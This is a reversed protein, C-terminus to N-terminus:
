AMPYLYLPLDGSVRGGSNRGACPDLKGDGLGVAHQDHGWCRRVARCCPFWCCQVAGPEELSVTCGGRGKRSFFSATEKCEWLYQSILSLYSQFSSLWTVGWGEAARLVGPISSSLPRLLTFPILQHRRSQQILVCHNLSKLLM